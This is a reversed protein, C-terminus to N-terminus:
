DGAISVLISVGALLLDAVGVADPENRHATEFRKWDQDSISQYPRAPPPKADDHEVLALPSRQRQDYEALAKAVAHEDLVSVPSGCHTCAQDREIDIGAGCSSCRVQKVKACLSKIESANLNRVFNKERLFQMFSILRGHQNVCRYYQFRGGRGVDWSQKLSANCTPCGGGLSVVRRVDNRHSHILRFLEIVSAPSLAASELHDFWIQHCPWCIDVDLASGIHNAFRTQTFPAHCSPCQRASASEAAANVDHTVSHNTV